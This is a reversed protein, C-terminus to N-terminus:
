DIWIARWRAILGCVSGTAVYAAGRAVIADNSLPLLTIGCYIALAIAAGGIMWPWWSRAWLHRMGIHSLLKAGLMSPVVTVVFGYPAAILLILPTAAWQQWGFEHETLGAGIVLPIGVIPGAAVSATLAGAIWRGNM